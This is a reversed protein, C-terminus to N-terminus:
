NELRTRAFAFFGDKFTAANHTFSVWKEAAEINHFIHQSHKRKQKNEIPEVTEGVILETKPSSAIIEGRWLLFLCVTYGLRARQVIILNIKEPWLLQYFFFLFFM